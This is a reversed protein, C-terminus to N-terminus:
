FRTKNVATRLDILSYNSQSFKMEISFIKVSDQSWFWFINRFFEEVLSAKKLSKLTKKIKKQLIYLSGKLFLEM